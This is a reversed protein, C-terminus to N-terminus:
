GSVLFYLLVLQLFAVVIAATAAVRTKWRNVAELIVLTVFNGAFKGAIFAATQDLSCDPGSDLGMLLRGLPNLEMMPLSKFYKITLFIDLASVLGIILKCTFLMWPSCLHHALWNRDLGPQSSRASPLAPSTLRDEFAIANM